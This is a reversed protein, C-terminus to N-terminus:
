IILPPSFIVLSAMARRWPLAMSSSSSSATEVVVEVLVELGEVEIVKEFVIVWKTLLLLVLVLVVEVGVTMGVLLSVRVAMELSVPLGHVPLPSLKLLPRETSSQKVVHKLVQFLHEGKIRVTGSSLASELARPLLM